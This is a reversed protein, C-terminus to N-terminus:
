NTFINMNIKYFKSFPSFLLFFSATITSYGGRGIHLNNINYPILMKSPTHVYTFCIINM